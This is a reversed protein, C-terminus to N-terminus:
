GAEPQDAWRAKAEEIRRGLVLAAVWLAVFILGLVVMAQGVLIATALMAAQIAHGLWYAWRRRLAGAVFICAIALGFGLTFAPAPDVDKVKIMVPVSLAFVFAEFALISGCLARM